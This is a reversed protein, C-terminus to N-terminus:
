ESEWPQKSSLLPSFHNIVWYSTLLYQYWSQVYPLIPDLSSLRANFFLPKQTEGQRSHWHLSWCASNGTSIISGLVLEGYFRWADMSDAEVRGCPRGQDIDLSEWSRESDQLSEQPRKDTPCSQCDAALYSKTQLGLPLVAGTPICHPGRVM